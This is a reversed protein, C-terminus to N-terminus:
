VTGFGMTMFGLTEVIGLYDSLSYLYIIQNSPPLIFSTLYRTSPRIIAITPIAQPPPSVAESAAGVAVVAGTGVGVVAGTGVGVMGGTGVTGTGVAVVAGTGVAVGTGGVAVGIGGVAVGVGVGVGTGYAPSDTVQSSM